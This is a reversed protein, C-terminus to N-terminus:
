CGVCLAMIALTRPGAQPGAGLVTPGREGRSPDRDGARAIRARPRIPGRRLPIPGTDEPPAVTAALGAPRETTVDDRAPRPPSPDDAHEGTGVPAPAVPGASPEPAAGPVPAAGAPPDSVPARAAAAERRAADREEELRAHEAVAAAERQEAGAREAALVRELEAAARELGAERKAVARAFEAQRESAAREAAAVSAEAAREATAVREEAAREAAAAREEAAQDAVAARQARAREQEAVSATQRTAADRGADADPVAFSARLRGEQSTAQVPAHERRAGGAHEVLLRPAGSRAPAGALRGEIELLAVGASVPTVSFRDLEFTAGRLSM